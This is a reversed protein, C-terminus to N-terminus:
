LPKYETSIKILHATNKVKFKQILNKRHTIATHNSIFLQAAIEKSSLGNAILGLVEKERTSIQVHPVKSHYPENINKSAEFYSEIKEKVSIDFLYNIALTENKIKHTVVEHKLYIRKGKFNYFHYRLTLVEQINSNNYYKTLRDRIFMAEESDIRSYWFSWASAFLNVRCKGLISKVTRSCYLIQDKEILYFCIMIDKSFASDVFSKSIRSTLERECFARPNLCDKIETLKM